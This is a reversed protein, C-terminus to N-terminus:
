GMPIAVQNMQDIPIPVGVMILDLDQDVILGFNTGTMKTVQYTMNIAIALLHLLIHIAAVKLLEMPTGKAEM